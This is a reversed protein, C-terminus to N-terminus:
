IVAIVTIQTIYIQRLAPLRKVASIAYKKNASLGSFYNLGEFPQNKITYAETWNKGDSSCSIVADVCRYAYGFRPVIGVVLLDYETRLDIQVYGNGLGDFYTSFDNDVTKTFDTASDNKWSESGTLMSASLPIEELKMSQMDVDNIIYTTVSNALLTASFGDGGVIVTSLEKWNEGSQINGSTRIM